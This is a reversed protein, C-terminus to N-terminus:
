LSFVFSMLFGIVLIFMLRLKLSFESLIVGRKSIYNVYIGTVVGVIIEAIIKLM